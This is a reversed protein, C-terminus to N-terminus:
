LLRTMASPRPIHTYFCITDQAQSVASNVIAVGLLLPSLVRLDSTVLKSVYKREFPAM